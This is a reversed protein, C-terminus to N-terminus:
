NMKYRIKQKFFAKIDDDFTPVKHLDQHINIEIVRFGDNTVAIDFGLYELEALYRCIEKIKTCILEWNPIVGAIPTGTDPHTPCPSFVHNTITEPQYMEGTDKNVMVCIGGYGVNDTYGTRSSGIRMYSQMIRPDYGNSNIVMVRISNVSKAYIKKIEDHMEIYETVVYFSKFGAILEAIGNRGLSEGNAMYRGKEYALCYFGDGHTGASPKLALKKKKKLLKCLGEVNEEIDEPCDWMKRIEPKGARNFLSFYYAPLYEKFPEMMYRFTTKDNVWIQYGNNIRNLWYYDFDSLFEKYNEETLGYQYIRFSQFGRKWAWIKKPLSVGKTHLFDNKVADLWLRYMYPRMGKRVHKKVYVNFRHEKIAKTRESMTLHRVAKKAEAKEKLYDNLEDNFAVQPLWPNASFHLFRFPEGNGLAISVSFYALQGMTEAVSCIESKISDWDAIREEHGNVSFTGDDINVLVPMYKRRGNEDMYLDAQACLIRTEEAADNAIWMKLACDCSLTSSFDHHLDVYDAVVYNAPLHKILNKMTVERWNEGNVYLYGRICELKYRRRKSIWYSPRLELVKKERILAIIDDETYERDEGDVKTIMQQSRRQIISFYVKRCHESHDKLMRNTTIIDGIWKSSFNNYPSLYVYDFDTIYKCERNKLLGYKKASKCQYGRDHIARIEEESYVNKYRKFDYQTKRYWTSAMKRSYGDTIIPRLGKERELAKRVDM